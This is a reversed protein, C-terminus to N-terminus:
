RFFKLVLRFYFIKAYVGYVREDLNHRGKVRAWKQQIGNDTGSTEDGKKVTEGGTHHISLTSPCCGPTFLNKVFSFTHIYWNPLNTDGFNPIPETFQLIQGPYFRLM